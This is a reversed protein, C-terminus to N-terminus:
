LLTSWIGEQNHLELLHQYFQDSSIYDSHGKIYDSADIVKVKKSKKPSAAPGVLGLAWTAAEALYYPWSLAEDHQSHFIFLDQCRELMKHYGVNHYICDHPLAAALSYFHNINVDDSVHHTLAEFALLNGMSHAMIDAKSSVQAIKQVEQAFRPALQKAHEKAYHYYAPHDYSPWSYGIIADYPLYRSKLEEQSYGILRMFLCKIREYYGMKLQLNSIKAQLSQNSLILEEHVTQLGHVYILVKKGKLRDLAQQYSEESLLATKGSSLVQGYQPGSRTIHHTGRYHPGRESIFFINNSLM